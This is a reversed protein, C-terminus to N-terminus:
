GILQIRGGTLDIGAVLMLAHITPADPHDQWLADIAQIIAMKGSQVKIAAVEQKRWTEYEEKTMALFRIQEYQRQQTRRVGQYSKLAVNRRTKKGVVIMLPAQRAVELAVRNYVLDFVAGDEIRPLRDTAEEDPNKRINSLAQMVKETLQPIKLRNGEEVVLPRIIADLWDRDHWDVRTGYHGAM